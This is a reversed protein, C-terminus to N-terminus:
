QPKAFLSDDLSPNVSVQAIMIRQPMTVGGVHNELRFPIQVGNVNRYDSMVTAITQQKRGKPNHSAIQADLFTQADIWLDRVEGGKLTLKLKYADRGNVQEVGAKAVKTGKAAYDVLPGDLEQQGAAIALENPTFPEVKHRGIYPRVKWGNKGDYVQISTQDKFKLEVRTMRPRRFDMQFPLTIPKITEANEAAKAPDPHLRRRPASPHHPDDAMKAPDPLTTGADMTGSMALTKVSKWASLGGRAAINKDIIQQLPLDPAAAQAGLAAALAIFGFTTKSFNFM